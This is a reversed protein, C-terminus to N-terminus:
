PSLTLASVFSLPVCSCCVPFETPKTSTDIPVLTPNHQPSLIRSITTLVNTFGLSDLRRTCAGRVLDEMQKKEQRLDEEIIEASRTVDLLGDDSWGLSAGEGGTIEVRCRIMAAIRHMIAFLPLSLGTLTNVM